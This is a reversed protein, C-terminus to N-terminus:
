CTHTKYYYGPEKTQSESESEPLARRYCLFDQNADAYYPKNVRSRLAVVGCFRTCAGGQKAYDTGVGVQM